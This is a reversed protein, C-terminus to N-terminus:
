RGKILFGIITLVITIIPIIFGSLDKIRQTSSEKSLFKDPEEKSLLNLYRVTEFNFGSNNQNKLTRAITRIERDIDLSSDSLVRSYVRDIDKIQVRLIKRIYKNYWRIAFILSQAKSIGTQKKSMEIYGMACYLNFENSIFSPLTAPFAIHLLYVLFLLLLTDTGIGYIKPFSSSLLNFYLFYDALYFALLIIIVPTVIFLIKRYSTYSGMRAVFGLSEFFDKISHKKYHQAIYVYSGAITLYMTGAIIWRRFFESIPLFILAFFLAIDIFIL